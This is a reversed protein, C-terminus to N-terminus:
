RLGDLFADLIADHEAPREANILHGCGPIERYVSGAIAEGMRRMAKPPANPDKEGAILLTPVRIAGLDDKRDFTVLNRLAARYTESPVARMATAMVELGAPDPADGVMAQILGPALDAMSKGADLPALRKGLFEEQFKGDRSGFAPTTGSLVLAAVRGPFRAVFDQAVMGGMSHGYVIARPAEVYDLLLKLAESLAAWDFPDPLASAGYGPNDWALAHRASGCRKVERAFCLAGGGIGHMFVIPTGGKGAEIFAPREVTM